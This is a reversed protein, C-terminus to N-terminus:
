QFIIGSLESLLGSYEQLPNWDWYETCPQMRQPNRPRPQYLNFICNSIANRVNLMEDLHKQDPQGQFCEKVVDWRKQLCDFGRIIREVLEDCGTAETCRYNSCALEQRAALEASREVSCTNRMRCATKDGNNCLVLLALCAPMDQINTGTAAQERCRERLRILIPLPTQQGPIAVFVGTESQDLNANCFGANCWNALGTLSGPTYDGGVVNSSFGSWDQPM